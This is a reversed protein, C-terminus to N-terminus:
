RETESQSVDVTLVPVPSKTVVKQSTSGLMNKEYEGAQTGMTILDIGADEVYSVILDAPKGRLIATSVDFGDQELTEKVASTAQEGEAKLKELVEAQMDDDMALFARDDVVYLVHVTVDRGDAIDTTHELVPDISSSGDTPVLIDSYM